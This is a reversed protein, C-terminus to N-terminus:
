DPEPFVEHLARVLDDTKRVIEELLEQRREDSVGQALEARYQVDGVLSMLWAKPCDCYHCNGRKDYPFQHKACYFDPHLAALEPALQTM